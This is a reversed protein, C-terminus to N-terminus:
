VTRKQLFGPSTSTHVSRTPSNARANTREDVSRQEGWGPASGKGGAVKSLVGRGDRGTTAAKRLWEWAEEGESERGGRGVVGNSSYMRERPLMELVSQYAAFGGVARRV